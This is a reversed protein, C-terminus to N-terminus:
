CADYGKVKLSKEMENTRRLISILLPKLIILCNSLRLELGKVKLAEKKQQVESKLIPLVCLSISVILGIKEGNVGFIKLPYMLNQIVKAFEIMTMSKSFIYSAEYAILLRVIILIGMELDGLISNLIGTFVVFPLLIKITKFFNKLDIQWFKILCCNLGFLVFLITFDEFFFIWILYLIFFIFKLFDRM